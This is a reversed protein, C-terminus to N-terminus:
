LGMFDKRCGQFGCKHCEGPDLPLPELAGIPLFPDDDNHITVNETGCKPCYLRPPKIFIITQRMLPKSPNPNTM